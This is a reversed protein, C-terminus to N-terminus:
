YFTELAFLCLFEGSIGLVFNQSIHIYIYENIDFILLTMKRFTIIEDIRRKILGTSM